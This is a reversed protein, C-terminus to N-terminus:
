TFIFESFGLRQPSVFLDDLGALFSSERNIFLLSYYTMQPNQRERPGQFSFLLFHFTILDKSRTQTCSFSKFM